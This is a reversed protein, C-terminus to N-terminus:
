RKKGGTLSEMITPKRKRHGAEGQALVIGIAAIAVAGIVKPIAVLVRELRGTKENEEITTKIVVEVNKSDLISLDLKELMKVIALQSRDQSQSFEEQLSKSGSAEVIKATFGYLLQLQQAELQTNSENMTQLLQQITTGISQQSLNVGLLEIANKAVVKELM